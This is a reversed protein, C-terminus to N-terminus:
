ARPELGRADRGRRDALVRRLAGAPQVAPGRPQRDAPQRDPGQAAPIPAAAVARGPGRRDGRLDQGLLDCLRPARHLRRRPPAPGARARRLRALARPDAAAGRGPAQVSLAARRDSDEVQDDGVLQVGSRRATLVVTSVCVTPVGFELGPYSQADIQCIRYYPFGDILQEIVAPPLANLGAMGSALLEAIAGDGIETTRLMLLLEGNQMATMAANNKIDLSNVDDLTLGAAGLIVKSTEMSGSGRQGVFIPRDGVASFDELRVPRRVIVHVASDDIAAVLEFEVGDLEAASLECMWGSRAPAGDEGAGASGGAAAAAFAEAAVDYQVLGVDLEGRALKRVNECSGKTNQLDLATSADLKALADRIAEGTIAFGGGKSGTGFRLAGAPAPSAAPETEPEQALAAAPALLLALVWSILVILSRNV